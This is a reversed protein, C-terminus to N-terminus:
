EKSVVDYKIMEEGAFEGDAEITAADPYRYTVRAIEFPGIHRAMIDGTDLMPSDSLDVKDDRINKNDKLWKKADILSESDYFVTWGDITQAGVEYITREGNEDYEIQSGDDNYEIRVGNEDYEHNENVRERGTLRELELTCEYLERSLRELRKKNNM